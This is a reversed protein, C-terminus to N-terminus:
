GSDFRVVLPGTAGTRRVRRILEQVFRKADRQTNASGRRMRARLIEAADAWTALLRHYGLQNM